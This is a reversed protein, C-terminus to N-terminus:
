ISHIYEKLNCKGTHELSESVIRMVLNLAEDYNPALGVIVPKHMRYYSQQLCYAPYIDLEDAGKALAIVYFNCPIKSKNLKHLLKKPSKISSSLFLPEVYKM